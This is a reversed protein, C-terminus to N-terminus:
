KQFVEKFANWFRKDHETNRPQRYDNIAANARVVMTSRGIRQGRIRAARQRKMTEYLTGDVGNTNAYFFTGEETAALYNSICVTYLDTIIAQITKHSDKLRYNYGGKKNISPRAAFQALFLKVTKMEIDSKRFRMATFYDIGAHGNDCANEMGNLLCRVKMRMDSDSMKGDYWMEVAAFLEKCSRKDFDGCVRSYLKHSELVIRWRTSTTLGDWTAKDYNITALARRVNIWEEVREWKDGYVTQLDSGTAGMIDKGHFTTYWPDLDIKLSNLYTTYVVYKVAARIRDCSVMAGAYNIAEFNFEKM